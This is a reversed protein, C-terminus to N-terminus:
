IVEIRANHILFSRFAEASKKADEIEADSRDEPITISYSGNKETILNRVYRVHVCRRGTKYVSCDCRLKKYNDTDAQVEHVGDDSLFFQLSHWEAVSDAERM